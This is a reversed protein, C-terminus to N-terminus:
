RSNDKGKVLPVFSNDPEGAHIVITRRGTRRLSVMDMVNMAILGNQEMVDQVTNM